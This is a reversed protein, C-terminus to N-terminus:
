LSSYFWALSTCPSLDRSVESGLDPLLLLAGAAQLRETLMRLNSLNGSGWPSASSAGFSWLLQLHALLSAWRHSVSQSQWIGIKCQDQAKQALVFATDKSKGIRPGWPVMEMLPPPHLKKKARGWTLHVTAQLVFVKPGPLYHKM